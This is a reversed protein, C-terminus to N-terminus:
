GLAKRILPELEHWEMAQVRSGNIFFTPTGQVGLSTAAQYMQILRELGARDALCQKAKAPAIGHAAALQPIGGLDAIRALREGEPLAQLKDKEAEPMGSIKGVWQPQTAYLKDVVPFFTAAGGCRAVLTAAVDIGNLVMNRYEFSVKGTKVYNPLGVKADHAFHACHPCTLSGYEVIKVKANPNGMRFGGEPTASVTRTWDATAAKPPSTKKAQALVPGTTGLAMVAAVAILRRDTKV